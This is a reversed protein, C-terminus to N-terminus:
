LCPDEEEKQNRIDDRKALWRKAYAIIQEIDRNNLQKILEDADITNRKEQDILLLQRVFKRIIDLKPSPISIIKRAAILKKANDIIRSTPSVVAFNNETIASNIKQNRRNIDAITTGYTDKWWKQTNELVNNLDSQELIIYLAKFNDEFEQPRHFYDIAENCAEVFKSTNPLPQALNRIRSLYKTCANVKTSIEAHLTDICSQADIMTKTNNTKTSDRLEQIFQDVLKQDEYHSGKNKPVPKRQNYLIREQEIKRCEVIEQKKIEELRNDILQVQDDIFQGLCFALDADM